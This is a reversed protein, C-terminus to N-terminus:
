FIVCKTVIIENEIRFVSRLQWCRIIGNADTVPVPSPESPMKYPGMGVSFASKPRRIILGSPALRFLAAIAQTNEGAIQIVDALDAGLGDIGEAADDGTFDALAGPGDFDIHTFDAKAACTGTFPGSGASWSIPSCSQMLPVPVGSVNGIDAVRM